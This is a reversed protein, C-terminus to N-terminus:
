SLENEYARTVVVKKSNELEDSVLAEVTSGNLELLLSGGFTAPFKM